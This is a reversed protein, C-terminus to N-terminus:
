GVRDHCQESRVAVTLTLAGDAQEIFGFKDENRLSLNATVIILDEEVATDKNMQRSNKVRTYLGAVVLPQSTPLGTRALTSLCGM